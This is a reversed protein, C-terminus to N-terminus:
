VGRDIHGSKTMGLGIQSGMRVKEHPSIYNRVMSDVFNPKKEWFDYKKAGYNIEVDDEGKVPLFDGLNSRHTFQLLKEGRLKASQKEGEDFEQYDLLSVPFPDVFMKKYYEDNYKRGMAECWDQIVFGESLDVFYEDDSGLDERARRQALHLQTNYLQTFEDLGTRIIEDLVPHQQLFEKGMPAWYDSARAQFNLYQPLARLFFTVQGVLALKEQIQLPKDLASIYKFYAEVNMGRRSEDNDYDFGLVIQEVCPGRYNHESRFGSFFGLHAVKDWDEEQLAIMLHALIARYWLSVTKVQGFDLLGINGGLDNDSECFTINGPHPDSNVCTGYFVQQGHAQYVYKVIRRIDTPVTTKTYEYPETFWGLTYNYLVKASNSFNDYLNAMKKYNKIEETTPPPTKGYREIFEDTTIGQDKAM